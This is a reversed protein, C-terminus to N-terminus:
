ARRARPIILQCRHARNASAALIQSSGYHRFAQAVQQADLFQGGPLDSKEEIFGFGKLFKLTM